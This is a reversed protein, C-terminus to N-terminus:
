RGQGSADDDPPQYESLVSTLARTAVYGAILYVCTEAAVACQQMVNDQKGFRSEFVLFVLGAGLLCLLWVVLRPWSKVRWGGGRRPTPVPPPPLRHNRVAPPHSTGPLKVPVGCGKCRVVAGPTGSDLVATCRPCTLESTM